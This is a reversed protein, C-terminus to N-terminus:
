PLFKAQLDNLFLQGRETPCWQDEQPNVILGEQEADALKPLIVEASLQTLQSFDALSFGDRLRLNNLMFEFALEEGGVESRKAVVDGQQSRKLYERPHAVRQERVVTGQPTTLKGHAGAGFGLYDGFRWYNLNHRCAYDDLAWASVEYNKYGSQELYDAAQIQMEYAEDSDPLPPPQSYFVTNPELTLHYFSIHEPQLAVATVLDQLMEQSSQRPLAYMLDLNINDFGAARASHFAKRAADADHIRGLTKLKEDSFSQVGLSLRNIGAELYGAFAGHEIAGPNAELTIESDPATNLSASIASFLRSFQEPEFLSPTGGGLFVSQIPRDAVREAVLEIERILADVYADAPM